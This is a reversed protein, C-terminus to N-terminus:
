HVNLSASTKMCVFDLYTFIGPALHHSDVHVDKGM